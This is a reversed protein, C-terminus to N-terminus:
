TVKDALLRRDLEGVREPLVRTSRAISHGLLASAREGGDQMASIPTLSVPDVLVCGTGRCRCVHVKHVVLMM